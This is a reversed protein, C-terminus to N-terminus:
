PTLPQPNCNQLTVHFPVTNNPTELMAGDEDGVLNITYSEGANVLTPRWSNSGRKWEIVLVAGDVVTLQCGTAWSGMYPYLLQGSLSKVTRSNYSTRNNSSYATGEPWSIVGGAWASGSCEPINCEWRSEIWSV